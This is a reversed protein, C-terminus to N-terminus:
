SEELWVGLLFFAVGVLMLAVMAFAVQVTGVEPKQTFLHLVPDLFGFAFLLMGVDRLFESGRKKLRNLFDNLQHM